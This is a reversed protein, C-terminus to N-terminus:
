LSFRRISSALLVTRCSSTERPPLLVVRHLLNKLVRAGALDRNRLDWCGLQQRVAHEHADRCRYHRRAGLASRGLKGALTQQLLRSGPWIQHSFDNAFHLAISNERCPLGHAAAEILRLGRTVAACSGDDGDSISDGVQLRAVADGACPCSKRNVGLHCTHRPQQNCTNGRSIRQIFNWKVFGRERSQSGYGQVANSHGFHLQTVQDGHDAEAQEALEGHLQQFGRATPNEAHVNVRGAGFKRSMETGIGDCGGGRLKAFEADTLGPACTDVSNEDSRFSGAAIGYIKRARDGALAGDHYRDASDADFNLASRVVFFFEVEANRAGVAGAAVISGIFLLAAVVGDAVHAPGFGAVHFGKELEQGFLFNINTGENGMTKRDLTRGAGVIQDSSLRTLRKESDHNLVRSTAIFRSGKFQHRPRGSCRRRFDRGCGRRIVNRYAQEAGSDKCGSRQQRCESACGARLQRADTRRGARAGTVGGALEAEAIAGGVLRLDDMIGADVREDYRSAM